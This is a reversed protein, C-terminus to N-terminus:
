VKMPCPKLHALVERTEPCLSIKLGKRSLFGIKTNHLYVSPTMPHMVFCPAHSGAGVMIQEHHQVRFLTAM